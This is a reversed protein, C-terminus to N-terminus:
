ARRLSDIEEVVLDMLEDESPWPEPGIYRVRSLITDLQRDADVSDVVEVPRLTAAGNRV